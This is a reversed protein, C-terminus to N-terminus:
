RIGRTAATSYVILTRTASTLGGVIGNLV